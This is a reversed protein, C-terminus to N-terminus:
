QKICWAAIYYTKTWQMGCCFGKDVMLRSVVSVLKWESTGCLLEGSREDFWVNKKEREFCNNLQACRYSRNKLMGKLIM